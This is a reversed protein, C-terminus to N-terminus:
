AVLRPIDQEYIVRCTMHARYELSKGITSCLEKMEDMTINYALNSFVVASGTSQKPVKPKRDVGVRDMINRATPMVIKQKKLMPKVKGATKKGVAKVPVAKKKAAVAKKPAKKSKSKADAKSDKVLQDLPKDLRDMTETWESISIVRGSITFHNGEQEAKSLAM